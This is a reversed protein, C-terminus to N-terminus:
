HLNYKNKNNVTPVHAALTVSIKKHTHTWHLRTCRIRELQNETYRNGDPATVYRLTRHLEDFLYSVCTCEEWMVARAGLLVIRPSHIASICLVYVVPVICAQVSRMRM